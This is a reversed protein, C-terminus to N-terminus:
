LLPYNLMIDFKGNKVNLEPGLIPITLRLFEILQWLRTMELILVIRELRGEWLNKKQLSPFEVKTNPGQIM